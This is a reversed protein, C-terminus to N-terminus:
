VYSINKEDDKFPKFYIKNGIRKLTTMFSRSNEETSKEVYVNLEGNELALREKEIVPKANM